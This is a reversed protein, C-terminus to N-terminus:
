FQRNYFTRKKFGYRNSALPGPSNIKFGEDLADLPNFAVALALFAQVLGLSIGVKFKM